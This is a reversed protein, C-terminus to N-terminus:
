IGVEEVKRDIHKEVLRDKEKLQNTLQEVERRLDFKDKSEPYHGEGKRLNDAYEHLM